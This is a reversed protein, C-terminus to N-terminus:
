KSVVSLPFPSGNNLKLYSGIGIQIDSHTHLPFFAVLIQYRLWPSLKMSCLTVFILQQNKNFKNPKQYDNYLTFNSFHLFLRKKEKEENREKEREDGERGKQYSIETYYM